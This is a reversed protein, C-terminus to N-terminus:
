KSDYNCNDNYNDDNCDDNDYNENDASTSTMGPQDFYYCSVRCPQCVLATAICKVTARKSDVDTMQQRNGVDFM